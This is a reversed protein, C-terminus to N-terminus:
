RPQNAAAPLCLRTRYRARASLEKVTWKGEDYQFMAGSESLGACLRELESAQAQLHTGVCGDPFADLFERYFPAAEDSPV